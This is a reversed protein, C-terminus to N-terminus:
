PASRQQGIRDTPVVGLRRLVGLADWSMWSEVIQGRALHSFTM